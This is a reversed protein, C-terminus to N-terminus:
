PQRRKCGGRGEQGLGLAQQMDARTGPDLQQGLSQTSSGPSSVGRTSGAAPGQGVGERRSSAWSGQAEPRTSRTRSGRCSGTGDQSRALPRGRWARLMWTWERPRQKDRQGMEWQRRRGWIKCGGRPRTAAGRTFICGRPVGQKDALCCDSSSTVAACLHRTLEKWAM